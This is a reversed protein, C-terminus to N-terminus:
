GPNKESGVQATIKGVPEYRSLHVPQKWRPLPSAGAPVAYVNYDGPSLHVFRLRGNQDAEICDRWKRPRLAGFEEWWVTAQQMPQGTSDIVTGSIGQEAHDLGDPVEPVAAYSWDIISGPANASFTPDSSWTVPRAWVHNSLIVPDVIEIPSKLYLSQITIRTTEGQAFSQSPVASLRLAFAAALLRNM